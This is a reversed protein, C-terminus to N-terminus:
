PAEGSSLQRFSGQFTCVGLSPLWLGEHDAKKEGQVKWVGGACGKLNWDSQVGYWVIEFKQETVRPTEGEEEHSDRRVM